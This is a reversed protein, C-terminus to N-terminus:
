MLWRRELCLEKKRADRGSKLVCMEKIGMSDKTEPPVMQSLSCFKGMFHNYAM